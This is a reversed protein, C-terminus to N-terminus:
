VFALVMALPLGCAGALLVSLTEAESEAVVHGLVIRGALYGCAPTALALWWWRVGVRALCALGGFWGIVCGWFWAPLRDDRPVPRVELSRIVAKGGRTTLAFNGHADATTLWPEWVGAINARVREHEFEPTHVGIVQLGQAEFRKEVSKLWPFTRYCNWCDFTWIDLMVLDPAEERLKELGEEGDKAVVPDFGEDQLIGVLSKRINEEDDIILITKM